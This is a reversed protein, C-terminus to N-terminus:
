PERVDLNIKTPWRKPSVRFSLRHTGRRLVARKSQAVVRGGRSATVKVRARATLTFTIRFGTRGVAVVKVNRARPAPAPDAATGARRRAAAPHRRLSSTPSRTMWRRRMPSRRRRSATMPDSRSSAHSPRTPISPCRRPVTPTTSCGGRTRHRALLREAGPLRDHATHRPDVDAGRTRITPATPLNLITPRARLRRPGSRRQDERHPERWAAPGVGRRHGPIAALDTIPNTRLAGSSTFRSRPLQWETLAGDGEKLAVLPIREAATSPGSTAKGGAAWLRDGDADLATLEHGDVPYNPVAAGTATTVRFQPAFPQPLIATADRGGARDPERAIETSGGIPYEPLLPSLRPHSSDGSIRVGRLDFRPLHDHERGAPGAARDRPHREYRGLAPPLRRRGPPSPRVASGATTRRTARAPTCPSTAAPRPARCRTRGSWRATRSTASRRAARIM